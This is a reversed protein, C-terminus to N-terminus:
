DEKEKAKPNYNELLDIMSKYHDEYTGNGQKEAQLALEMVKIKETDM